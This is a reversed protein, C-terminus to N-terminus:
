NQKEMTDDVHTAVPKDDVELEKLVSELGKPDKSRELVDVHMKPMERAVRVVDWPRKPDSMEFIHDIEELSRGATEPYFTFVVPANIVFNCAAFILYAYAGINNI